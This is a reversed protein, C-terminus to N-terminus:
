TFLSRVHNAEEEAFHCAVEHTESLRAVSPRERHCISQAALCREAFPCGVPPAWLTRAHGPIPRIASKVGTERSGRLMSSQLALSYPHRADRLFEDIEATEMIMGGYLVVVRDCVNAAVGIDHTVMVTTMNRRAAIERLLSLVQVQVTADLATTPEDAFLVKPGCAIATAIMVRQRMGGSLEFSHRTMQWEPNPLGVERLLEIARRAAEPKTCISHELMPEMVQKGIPVLPNLGNAVDQMVLGIDRGRIGRLQRERMSLLEKGAFAAQGHVRRGRGRVLGLISLLTISKGSGSEGLIGLWEGEKVDFSIGNVAHVTGDSADIEVRLDRIELINM